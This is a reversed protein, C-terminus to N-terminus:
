AAESKREALLRESLHQPVEAYHDFKMSFAGRGGTLSHLDPSYTQIEAMPLHASVVSVAGESDLGLIRGRRTNLNGIVDGIFADPVRVKM